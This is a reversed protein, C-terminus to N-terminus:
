GRLVKIALVHSCGIGTAAKRANKFYLKETGKEARIVKAGNSEGKRSLSKLKRAHPRSNNFKRTVWRLNCKRNDTRDNSIHDVQELNDPNPIFAEAVLRHVLKSSGRNDKRLTVYIYGTVPNYSLKMEGVAGSKKYNLSRVKGCNSVEYLGEYGKVPLWVEKSNKGNTNTNTNTNMTITQKNTPLSDRETM